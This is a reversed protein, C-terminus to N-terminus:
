LAYANRNNRKKLPKVESELFTKLWIIGTMEEAGACSGGGEPKRVNEPHPSECQTVHVTICLQTRLDWAAWSRTPQVWPCTGTWSSDARFSKPMAQTLMALTSVDWKNLGKDLLRDCGTYVTAPSPSGLFFVLYSWQPGLSGWTLRLCCWSCRPTPGTSLVFSHTLNKKVSFLGRRM